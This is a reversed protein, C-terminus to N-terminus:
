AAAGLDSPRLWHLAIIPPVLQARQQAEPQDHNNDTIGNNLYNTTGRLGQGTTRPAESEPRLAGHATFV